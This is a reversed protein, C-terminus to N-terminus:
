RKPAPGRKERIVALSLRLSYTPVKPGTRRAAQLAEIEAHPGGFRQHWGEGVVEEGQVIVCGVMPNPEVWGTGERALDLARLMHLQDRNRTSETM